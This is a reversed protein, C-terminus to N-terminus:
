CYVTPRPSVALWWYGPHSEDEFVENKPRFHDIDKSAGPNKSETYWCKKYSIEEYYTKLESWVISNKSIALIRRKEIAERQEKTSAAILQPETELFAKTVENAADSLKKKQADSLKAEIKSIDIYRM